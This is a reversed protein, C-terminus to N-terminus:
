RLVKETKGSHISRELAELVQVPRLMQEHTMPMKGTKFMEVFTRTGRLYPNNGCVIPAELCKRTGVAVMGFGPADKKIFAMTAVLGNPYFLQGTANPGDKAVFVSKVDYGFAHLMVDVQHIGYFFVGGWKSRLDCPGYSYASVVKGVSPLKKKFRLFGDWFPLVSFSTVPTKKRKAMALFNKGEESRFCFPKDIFAPVGAEVFPRAASLHFKPHRHDVVIADVKGLMDIPRRVVTPIKGAKAAAEAFAPTEGWLYAVTCGKVNKDVNIERAIEATHSNEAGIIGIKM